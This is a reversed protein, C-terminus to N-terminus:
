RRQRIHKEVMKKPGGALRARRHLSRITQVISSQRRSIGLRALDSGARATSRM